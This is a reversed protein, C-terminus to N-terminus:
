IKRFSLFFNQLKPILLLNKLFRERFLTRSSIKYKKFPRGGRVSFRANVMDSGARKLIQNRAVLGHASIMYFAFGTPIRVAKWHLQFHLLLEANRSLAVNLTEFVRRFRANGEKVFLAAFANPFIQVFPVTECLANSEPNIKFVRVDGVLRGINLRQPPCDFLNPFLSEEIFVVADHGITRAAAGCKRRMLHRLTIFFHFVRGDKHPKGDRALRLCKEKHPRRRWPREGRVYREGHIGLHTIHLNATPLLRENEGFLTGRNGPRPVHDGCNGPFVKHAHLILWQVDKKRHRVGM